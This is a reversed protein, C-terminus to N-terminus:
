FIQMKASEVKDRFSSLLNGANRLDQESIAESKSEHLGKRIRSLQQSLRSQTEESEKTAQAAHAELRQRVPSAALDSIGEGSADQTKVRNM